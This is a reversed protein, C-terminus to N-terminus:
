GAIIAEFTPDLYIQLSENIKPWLSLSFHTKYIHAANNNGFSKAM